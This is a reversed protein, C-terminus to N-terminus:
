PSFGTPLRATVDLKAGVGGALLKEGSFGLKLKASISVVM